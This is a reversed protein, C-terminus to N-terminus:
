GKDGSPIERRLREAIERIVAYVPALARTDPTERPVPRLLVRREAPEDQPRRTHAM